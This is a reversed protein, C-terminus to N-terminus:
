SANKLNRLIHFRNQMAQSPICEAAVMCVGGPKHVLTDTCFSDCFPARAMGFIFMDCPLHKLIGEVKRLEAPRCWHCCGRVVSELYSAIRFVPGCM